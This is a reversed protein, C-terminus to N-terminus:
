QATEGALALGEHALVARVEDLHAPGFNPLVALQAATFRTLDRFTQWPSPFGLAEALALVQVLGALTRRHCPVEDPRLDRLPRDIMSM